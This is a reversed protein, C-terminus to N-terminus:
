GIVVRWFMRNEIEHHIINVFSDVLKHHASDAHFVIVQGVYFSIRLTNQAVIIAPHPRLGNGPELIGGPM